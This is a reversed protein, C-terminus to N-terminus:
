QDIIAAGDYEILVVKGVLFSAPKKLRRLNVALQDGAGTCILMSGQTKIRCVMVQQRHPKVLYVGAIQEITRDCDRDILLSAERGDCDTADILLLRHADDPLGGILRSIQNRSFPVVETVRKPDPVRSTALEADDVRVVWVLDDAPPAQPQREDTVGIMWGASIELWLCIARLEEYQPRREGTRWRAILGPSKGVVAAVEANTYPEIAEIIRDM